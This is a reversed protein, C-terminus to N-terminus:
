FPLYDDGATYRDAEMEEYAEIQANLNDMYDKSIIVGQQYDLMDMITSETEVVNVVRGNTLSIQTYLKEFTIDSISRLSILHKHHNGYGTLELFKM